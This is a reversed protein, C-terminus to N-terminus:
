RWLNEVTYGEVEGFILTALYPNDIFPNRNGQAAEIENNRQIELVSIPDEANWKLLLSIGGMSVQECPLNYRLNMYLVMRAVDGRYDDSPYWAKRQFVRGAQGKGAGFPLNGRSSNKSRDAYQLHHLDGLPEETSHSLRKIYSQPYIHETNITGEPNGRKQVFEKSRSEGTYMLLLNGTKKPDANAKELFPHRKSYPLIRSHKVITLVALEEKLAEGRKSFDVNQYYYKLKKPVIIPEYSSLTHQGYSLANLFALLILPILRM